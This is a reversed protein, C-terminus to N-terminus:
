LRANYKKLESVLENQTQTLTLDSRTRELVARLADVTRRLGNTLGDPYDFTTLGEYITNMVELQQEASEFHGKRVDDLILRRLESAAEGIGHLYANLSVNLEAFDPIPKSQSIELLTLAEVLEKEADQIHGSFLVHPRHEIEGKAAKLKTQAEALIAASGEYDQRHILKIAKSAMQILKRSEALAIERADHNVQMDQRLKEFQPELDTVDNM